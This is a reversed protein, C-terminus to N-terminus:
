KNEINKLYYFTSGEYLTITITIFYLYLNNFVRASQDIVRYNLRKYKVNCKIEISRLNRKTLSYHLDISDIIHYTSRVNQNRHIPSQWISIHLLQKSIWGDLTIKGRQSTDSPILGVREAKSGDDFVPSVLTEVWFQMM